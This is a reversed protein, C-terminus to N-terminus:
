SGTAADRLTAALVAPPGADAGRERGQEGETIAAIRERWPLPDPENEMEARRAAWYVRNAERACPGCLTEDGVPRFVHEEGEGECVVFQRVPPPAVPPAPAAVPAPLKQVLRHRLFGVASRVGDRPLESILARRLEAASVGRRIWEGAVEALGRAERVGLHLQPNVHRLSLLVREGEGVESAVFAESAESAESPPHSYNEGLEEDVPEYGGVARGGPEGVAPNRAGPRAAPVAPASPAASASPAGVRDNRVAAAQEVTLPVNAFLQDTVWFGRDGQRKWEHVFGNAILQTKARQYARGTIGFKKAHESLAKGAQQEPLGQVYLLLIKADSNLRPHRVVDHSAKTYRRSPAIAHWLM